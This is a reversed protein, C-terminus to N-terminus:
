HKGNEVAAAAAEALHKGSASDGADEDGIAGNRVSKLETMRRSIGSILLGAVEEDNELVWQMQSRQLM